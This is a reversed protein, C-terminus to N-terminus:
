NQQCKEYSCEEELTVVQAKRLLKGNSYIYGRKVIEVIEYPVPEEINEDDDVMNAPRSSPRTGISESYSADFSCGLLKLEYIGMSTLMDSLQKTWKNLLKHWTEQGESKMEARIHDIDDLWVILNSSLKQLEDQRKEIRVVKQEYTEKWSLSEEIKSNLNVVKNVIEQSSKYQLRTLKLLQENTKEMQENTKNMQANLKTISKIVEESRTWFKWKM